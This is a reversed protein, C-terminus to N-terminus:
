CGWACSPAGRSPRNVFIGDKDFGLEKIASMIPEAALIDHATEGVGCGREVSILNGLFQLTSREVNSMTFERGPKGM